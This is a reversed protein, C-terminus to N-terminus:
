QNQMNIEHDTVKIFETELVNERPNQFSVITNNWNFIM